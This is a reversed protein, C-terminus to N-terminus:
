DLHELAQIFPGLYIQLRKIVLVYLALEEFKERKHTQLMSFCDSFVISKLELLTTPSQVVELECLHDM